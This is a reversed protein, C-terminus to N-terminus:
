LAKFQESWKYYARIMDMSVSPKRRSIIERFDKLTLERPRTLNEGEIPEVYESSIFLENVVKLQAAQCVDKIDSASYGDFISALTHTRIKGDLKLQNTYLEFLQERAELTPLSVYIRKQFRRLFPHDLSWPKNTAGIVYLNMDKGKGNIGDIETLFQNRSRVEGGIENTREGLLSDLEDIFLIVPKGERRAYDHAMKFLRSVNKEAEGLWKSMMSSGDVNIFYGDLENATAAALITKGCGPPGYLLIGRPWGLPFLDARKTPYVISERLANKADDVGVVDRWKVNPKEKMVMNEFDNQKTKTYNMKQEGTLTAPDVTPDGDIGHTAQLAKIRNQYSKIRESYIKNIKSDPYLRTLKILSDIAKQYNGIAMERSGHSDFKIADSAYRSANKELEQPAMNM